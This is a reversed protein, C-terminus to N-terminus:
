RNKKWEDVRADIELAFENLQKRCSKKKESLDHVEAQLSEKEHKLANITENYQTKTEKLVISENEITEIETLYVSKGIDLNNGGDILFLDLLENAEDTSETITEESKQMVQTGESNIILTVNELTPKGIILKMPM